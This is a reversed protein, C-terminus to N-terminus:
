EVMQLIKSIDGLQQEMDKWQEDTLNGSNKGPNDTSSDFDDQVRLKGLVAKADDGNALMGHEKYMELELLRRVASKLADIGNLVEFKRDVSFSTKVKGIPNITITHKEVSDGYFRKIEILIFHGGNQDYQRSANIVIENKADPDMLDEAITGKDWNKGDIFIRLSGDNRRQVECKSYLDSNAFSEIDSVISSIQTAPLISSVNMSM